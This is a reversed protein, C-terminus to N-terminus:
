TFSFFSSVPLSALFSCFFSRRSLFIFLGSPSSTNLTGMEFERSQLCFLNPVTEAENVDLLLFPVQKHQLQHRKQGTLKDIDTELVVATANDLGEVLVSRRRLAGDDCLYKGTAAESIWSIM